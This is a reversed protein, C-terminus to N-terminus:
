NSRLPCEQQSAPKFCHRVIPLHECLVVMVVMVAPRARSTQSAQPVHTQLEDFRCDLDIGVDVSHGELRRWIRESCSASGRSPRSTGDKCDAPPAIIGTASRHHARRAPRRGDRSALRLGKPGSGSRGTWRRVM